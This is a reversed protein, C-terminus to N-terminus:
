GATTNENSKFFSIRDQFPLDSFLVAFHKTTAGSSGLCIGQFYLFTMALGMCLILMM